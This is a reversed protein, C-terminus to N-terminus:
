AHWRRYDPESAEDPKEMIGDGEGLVLININDVSPGSHAIILM